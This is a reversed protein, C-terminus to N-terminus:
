IREYCHSPTDALTLSEPSKAPAHAKAPPAKAPPANLRIESGLGSKEKNIAKAVHDRAVIVNALSPGTKKGTSSRLSSSRSRVSSPLSILSVERDVKRWVSKVDEQIGRQVIEKNVENVLAGLPHSYLDRSHNSSDDHPDDGRPSDITCHHDEYITIVRFLRNYITQLEDQDSSDVLQEEDAARMLILHQAHLDDIAAKVEEVSLSSLHAAEYRDIVEAVERLREEFLERRQEDSLHGLSVVEGGGIKQFHKLKTRMWKSFDQKRKMGSVMRARQVLEITHSRMMKQDSATVLPAVPRGPILLTQDLAIPFISTTYNKNPDLNELNPSAVAVTARINYTGDKLFPTTEKSFKLKSRNLKAKISEDFFLIEYDSEPREIRDLTFQAFSQTEVLVTLFPRAEKDQSALFEEKKFWDDQVLDMGVINTIGPEIDGGKNAADEEMAQKVQDPVVLHLRYNKLLSTFVKLFSAQIKKENFTSVCPHCIDSDEGSEVDQRKSIDKSSTDINFSLPALPPLNNLEASEPTVSRTRRRVPESFQKRSRSGEGMGLEDLQDLIERNELDSRRQPTIVNNSSSAANQTILLTDLSSAFSDNSEKTPLTSLSKNLKAFFSVPTSVNSSSAGSGMAIGNNLTSTNLSDMSARRDSGKNRSSAGATPIPAAAQANRTALEVEAAVWRKSLNSFPVLVGNPYAYKITIPVGKMVEKPVAATPSSTRGPNLSQNGVYKSLRALLKKRDKVPISPVAMPVDLVNNDLDVIAADNPRWEEEQSRTFYERNVGIIYPMPAQLYSLLRSPLIPILIHLMSRMPALLEKFLAVKEEAEALAEIPDEDEENKHPDSALGRKIRFVTEQNTALQSQIHQMYELDSQAICDHRWEEIAAEMQANLRPHLKEYITVCVGYNKSGDEETIIMPLYQPFKAKENHDTAPYRCLVEPTYKYDIPHRRKMKSTCPTM